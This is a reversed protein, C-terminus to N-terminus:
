FVKCRLSAFSAFFSLPLLSFAIKRLLIPKEERKEEEKRGERRQPAFKKWEPISEKPLPFVSRKAHAYHGWLWLRGRNGWYAIQLVYYLLMIAKKDLLGGM